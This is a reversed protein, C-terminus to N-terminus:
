RGARDFTALQAILSANAPPFNFRPLETPLVWRLERGDPARAPEGPGRLRCTVPFFCLRAHPYDWDFPPLASAPDAALGTEEM